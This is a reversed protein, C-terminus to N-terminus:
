NGPTSTTHIQDISDIIEQPSKEEIVALLNIAKTLLRDSDEFNNHSPLVLQIPNGADDAAGQFVLLRPNPHTVTQWGSHQLYFVVDAIKLPHTQLEESLIQETM